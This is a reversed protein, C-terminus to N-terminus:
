KMHLLPKTFTQSGNVLRCFYVGGPLDSADFVITQEEALRIEDVLVKLTEGLANCISLQAQTQEPVSFKITTTIDFPNPYINLLVQNQYQSENDIAAPDVYNMAWKISAIFLAWGEDTMSTDAVDNLLFTGVRRAPASGSFMEAGEDYGFIVAQGNDAANVAIIEVNGMPVGYSVAKEVNAITVVGNTLDAAMQHGEGIIQIETTNFEGGDLESHGLFDYLFPEWSIVPVALTPLGPLNTSITGSSVTASLLVLSTGATAGDNAEAQGLLTVTFGMEALLSDIKIEAANLNAADAVVFVAPDSFQAISFEHCFIILLLPFLSGFRFYSRSKKM